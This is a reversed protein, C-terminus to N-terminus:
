KDHKLTTRDAGVLCCTEDITLETSLEHLLKLRHKYQHCKTIVNTRGFQLVFKHFLQASTQVSSKIPGAIYLQTNKVMCASLM